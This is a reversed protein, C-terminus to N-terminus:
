IPWRYCITERSCSSRPASRCRTCRGRSHRVSTPRSSRRWSSCASRPSTASATSSIESASASGLAALKTLTALQKEAQDRDAQTRAVDGALTYREQQTGGKTLADYSAQAGRLATLAAAVRTRAETDDMSVLLKGEPVRDGEHVYVAKVLGAYPAHAEFNQQPEIIGNTSITSVIEGTQAQVVRIPLRTRTVM